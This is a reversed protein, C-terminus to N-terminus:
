HAAYDGGVRVNGPVMIKSFTAVISTPHVSNM